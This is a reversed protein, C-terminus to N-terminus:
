RVDGDVWWPHGLGLPVSALRWRLPPMLHLQDAILEQLDKRTLPNGSQDVRDMVALSSVNSSNRGDEVALFMTDRSTLARM